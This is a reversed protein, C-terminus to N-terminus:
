RAADRLAQAAQAGDGVEGAPGAVTALEAQHRMMAIVRGAAQDVRERELTGDKLAEVVGAHAQVNDAPNLLLDAGAILAHVAVDGADGIQALAGMGLSDTVTVGAFELDERLVRYAEPSLSAPVGPDWALVDVHAVMVMPVGAEVADAFPPLETAAIQDADGEHVPLALHSDTTLSGHGPFHKVAPLVGGELLGRVAPVVAAGVTVPDSGAARSGITVDQGPV